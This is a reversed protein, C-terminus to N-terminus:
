TNQRSLDSMNEFVTNICMFDWKCLSNITVFRGKLAARFTMLKQGGVHPFWLLCLLFVKLICFYFKQDGFQFCFLVYKKSGEAIAQCILYVINSPLMNSSHYIRGWRTASCNIFNFLFPKIQFFYSGCFPYLHLLLFPLTVRWQRSQVLVNAAYNSLGWCRAENTITISFVRKWVRFSYWVCWGITLWAKNECCNESM